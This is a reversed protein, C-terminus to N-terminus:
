RLQTEMFEQPSISLQYFSQTLELLEKSYFCSEFNLLDINFDGMLSINRNKSSYLKISLSLYNLFDNAKDHQRYVVGCISKNTDVIKIWLAQYSSNSTHQLVNYQLQSNIFMGASDTSLPTTVYEFYYNPLSLLNESCAGDHIQIETLGIVSFSIKLESLVHQYLQKFNRKLSRKNSHLISIFSQHNQNIKGKILPRSLATLHSIDSQLRPELFNLDPEINTNLSNMNFIDFDDLSHLTELTKESRM